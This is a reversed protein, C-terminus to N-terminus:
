RHRDRIEAVQQDSFAGCCGAGIRLRLRVEGTPEPPTWHLGVMAVEGTLEPYATKRSNSVHEYAQTLMHDGGREGAREACQEM